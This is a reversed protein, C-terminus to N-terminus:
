TGRGGGITRGPYPCLTIVNMASMNTVAIAASISSVVFDWQLVAATFLNSPTSTNRRRLANRVHSVRNRPWLLEYRRNRQVFITTCRESASASRPRDFLGTLGHEAERPSRVFQM